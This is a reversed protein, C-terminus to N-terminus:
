ELLGSLDVYGLVLIVVWKMARGLLDRLPEYEILKKPYYWISLLNKRAELTDKIYTKGQYSEPKIYGKEICQDIVEKLDQHFNSFYGRRMRYLWMFWFNLWTSRFEQFFVTTEYLSRELGHTKLVYGGFTQDTERPARRRTKSLHYVVQRETIVWLMYDLFAQLRARIITWKSSKGTMRTYTGINM